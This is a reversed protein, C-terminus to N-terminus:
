PNKAFCAPIEPFSLNKSAPTDGAKETKTVKVPSTPV